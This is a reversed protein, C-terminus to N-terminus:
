KPSKPPKAEGTKTRRQKECEAVWRDHAVLERKMREDLGTEKAKTETSM